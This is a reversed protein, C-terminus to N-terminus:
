AQRGQWTPDTQDFWYDRYENHSNVFPPSENIHYYNWRLANNIQIMNYPIGAGYNEVLLKNIQKDLDKRKEIDLELVAQSTLADVEDIKVAYAAFQPAASNYTQWLDLTPELKTVDSIWGYWINASGNGYQASVIKNTITSYPEIKAVFENGLTEKLMGTISASVGSFAGEWIDPIDVTITGLAAGGGAEWM